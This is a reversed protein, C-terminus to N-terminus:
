AMDKACTVLEAHTYLNALVADGFKSILGKLQNHSKEKQPSHDEEIEKMNVKAEKQLQKEKRVMVMQQHAMAKKVQWKQRFDKVFQNAGMNVYHQVVESFM